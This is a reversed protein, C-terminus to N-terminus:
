ALTIGVMKMVKNKKVLVVDVFYASLLCKHLSSPIQIRMM